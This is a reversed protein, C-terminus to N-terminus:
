FTIIEVDPDEIVTDNGAKRLYVQYAFKTDVPVGSRLKCSIKSKNGHEVTNVELCETPVKTPDTIVGKVGDVWKLVLQTDGDLCGDKAKLDWVIETEEDKILVHSKPITRSKCDNGVKKILIRASAHHGAIRPNGGGACSAFGLASVIALAVVKSVRKM